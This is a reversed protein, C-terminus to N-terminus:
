CIRPLQDGTLMDVLRTGGIRTHLIVRGAPDDIIEGIRCADRGLPHARWLSLARDAQAWTGDTGAWARSEALMLTKVARTSDNSASTAAVFANVRARARM